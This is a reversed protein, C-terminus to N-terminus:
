DRDADDALGVGTDRGAEFGHCRIVPLPPYRRLRADSRALRCLLFASGRDNTIWRRHICRGCLGASPRGSATSLTM